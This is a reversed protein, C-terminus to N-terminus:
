SGAKLCGATFEVAEDISRFNKGWQKIMKESSYESIGFASNAMERTIVRNLTLLRVFHILRKSVKIHPPKKNLSLAVKSFLDRYSINEASLIFREKNIESDLLYVIGEAVDRVDVYGTVGNTYFPIGKDITRFIKSSGDSWTGPGIIVAPNVIAGNLGEEFGRWVDLESKTKTYAYTNKYHAPIAKETCLGEGEKCEIAAISSVHIFRKVNKEISINVINETGKINIAKMIKRDKKKFSVFAAAHVVHDDAKISDEIVHRDLVNGKIWTIKDFLSNVDNTYFNLLVRFKEMGKENRYLAKVKYGARLLYYILPVGVFGTGGTVFVNQKINM